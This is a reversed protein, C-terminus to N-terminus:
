LLPEFDQISNEYESLIDAIPTFPMNSLRPLVLVNRCMPFKRPLLQIVKFTEQIDEYKEAPNGIIFDFKMNIKYASLLKLM